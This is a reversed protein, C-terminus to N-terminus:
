SSRLGAVLSWLLFCLNEFMNPLRRSYKVEYCIVRNMEFKAKAKSCQQRWISKLFKLIEAKNELYM